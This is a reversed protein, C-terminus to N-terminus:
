YGAQYKNEFFIKVMTRIQCLEVELKKFLDNLLKRTNKNM